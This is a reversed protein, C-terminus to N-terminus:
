RAITQKDFAQLGALRVPDGWPKVSGVTSLTKMVLFASRPEDRPPWVSVQRSTAAGWLRIGVGPPHSPGQPIYHLAVVSDDFNKEVLSSGFLSSPIQMATWQTNLFFFIKRICHLLKVQVFVCKRRERHDCEALRYVRSNDTAILVKTNIHCAQERSDM